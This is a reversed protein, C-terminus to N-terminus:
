DLPPTLTIAIIKKTKVVMVFVIAYTGFTLIPSNDIKVVRVFHTELNYLVISSVASLM